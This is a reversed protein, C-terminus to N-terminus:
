SRSSFVLKMTRFSLDFGGKSIRHYRQIHRNQFSRRNWRNTVIMLGHEVSTNSSM